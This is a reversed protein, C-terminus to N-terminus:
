QKSNTEPSAPLIKSCSYEQDFYGFRTIVEEGDENKQVWIEFGETWNRYVALSNVHTISDLFETKRFDKQFNPINKIYKALLQSKDPYVDIREVIDKNSEKKNEQYRVHVRSNKYKYLSVNSPLDDQGLIKEADLRTSVCPVIGKWEKSIVETGFVAFVLILM